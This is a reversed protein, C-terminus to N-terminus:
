AAQKQVVQKRATLAKKIDPNNDIVPKNSNYFATLETIANCKNIEDIWDQLYDQEITTPASKNPSDPAYGKENWFPPASAKRWMVKNKGNVECFVKAGYKKIWAQIYQPQWLECAIGLDKCCRTICDSKASEWVSAWSQVKNDEHYEAEGVATAVYCGRVMLVGEIYLKNRNPDKTQSKVILVWQGIGFAQNMRQRWFVQPLYILGDPRLEIITEDFEATLKDICEKELALTSANNYLAIEHNIVIDTTQEM